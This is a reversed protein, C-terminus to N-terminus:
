LIIWNINTIPQSTFTITGCQESPNIGSGEVVVFGVVM